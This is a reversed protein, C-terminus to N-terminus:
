WLINPPPADIDLTKPRLETNATGSKEFHPKMNSICHKKGKWHAPVDWFGRLSEAEAEAQVRGIDSLQAADLRALARHQGHLSLSFSLKEWFGAHPKAQCLHMRNASIKAM